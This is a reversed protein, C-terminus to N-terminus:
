EPFRGTVAVDFSFKRWSRPLHRTLFRDAQVSLRSLPATLFQPPLIVQAFPTSAYGYYRVQLDRLGSRAFLATLEAEAFYIQEESYSGDLRARLRRMGQILPNGNQPEIVTFYAGSRAIRQMEGVVKDLETMHHLAGVILVVDATNNPLGTEKANGTVFEVNPLDRTFTKGAAVLEASQDIGIYKQYRGYLYRAPAGVGCGVDVLVGLDEREALITEVACMVRYKRAIAASAAIDKRAYSQAIEDFLQQDRRERSM